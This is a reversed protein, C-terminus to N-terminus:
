DNNSGLLDIIHLPGDVFGFAIKEFRTLSMAKNEHNEFAKLLSIMYSEMTLDNDQLIDESVIFLNEGTSYAEDLAWSDDDDDYHSSAIFQISYTGDEEDYINFCCAPYDKDKINVIVENLWSVFGEIIDM